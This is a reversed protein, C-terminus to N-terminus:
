PLTCITEQHDYWFLLHDCISGCYKYKELVCIGHYLVSTIRALSFVVVPIGMAM